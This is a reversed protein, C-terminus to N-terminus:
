KLLYILPNDIKHIFDGTFETSSYTPNTLGNAVCTGAYSNKCEANMKLVYSDAMLSHM